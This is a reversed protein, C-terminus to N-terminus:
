AFQVAQAEKHNDKTKEDNNTRRHTKTGSSYKSEILKYAVAKADNCLSKFIGARIATIEESSLRSSPEYDTSACCKLDDVVIEIRM